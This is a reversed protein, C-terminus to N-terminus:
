LPPHLVDGVRWAIVRRPDNIQQIDFRAGIFQIRHNGGQKLLFGPLVAAGLAFNQQRAQRFKLIGEGSHAQQQPFNQAVVAQIVFVLEVLTQFLSGGDGRVAAMAACSATLGSSVVSCARSRFRSRTSSRAKAWNACSTIRM